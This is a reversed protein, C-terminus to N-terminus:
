KTKVSGGTSGFGGSSRTTAEFDEDVEILDIYVQRRFILQCCRFPLEIPPSSEDVKTLAIYLNGTYSNDIIGISNALMYGSKSLSSRPVIEAYYGHDVAIKIGTDYLVTNNLWKKAEKIITLDYGVDSPRGKTPMIADQVDKYVKCIPNGGLLGLYSCGRKYLDFNGTRIESVPPIDYIKGLFDVCNCGYYSYTTSILENDYKKGNIGFRKWEDEEVADFSYLQDNVTNKVYPINMYEIIDKIIKINSLNEKLVCSFEKHVYICVYHETDFFGRIFYLKQKQDDPLTTLDFEQPFLSSGVSYGLTYADKPTIKSM